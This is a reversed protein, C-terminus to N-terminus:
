ARVTDGKIVGAKGAGFGAAILLFLILSQMMAPPMNEM